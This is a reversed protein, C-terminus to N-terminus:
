KKGKTQRVAVASKQGRVHTKHMYAMVPIEADNIKVTERSM